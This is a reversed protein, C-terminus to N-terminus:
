GPPAILVVEGTQGTLTVPVVTDPLFVQGTLDYRLAQDARCPLVVEAASGTTILVEVSAPVDPVPAATTFILMAGALDTWGTLVATISDLRLDTDGVVLLGGAAPTWEATHVVGDKVVGPFGVGVPGDWGFHEIVELSTELIAEPTPAQPTPIRIREEVLAGTETDVPAGKLGSGGIDLGFVSM